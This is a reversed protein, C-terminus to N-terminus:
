KLFRARRNVVVAEYIDLMDRARALKEPAPAEFLDASIHRHLATAHIMDRHEGCAHVSPLRPRECLHHAMVVAGHSRSLCAHKLRSKFVAEFVIGNPVM